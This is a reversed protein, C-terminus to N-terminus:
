LLAGQRLASVMFLSLWDVGFLSLGGSMNRSNLHRPPMGLRLLRSLPMQAKLYNSRGLTFPYTFFLVLPSLCTFDITKWKLKRARRCPLLHSSYIVRIISMSYHKRAISLIAGSTNAKNEMYMSFTNKFSTKLVNLRISCPLKIPLQSINIRSKIPTM